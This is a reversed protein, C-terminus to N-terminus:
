SRREAIGEARKAQPSKRRERAVQEVEERLSAPVPRCACARAHVAHWRIRQARTAKPPMPNGPHWAKNVRDARRSRM